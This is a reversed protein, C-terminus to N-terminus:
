RSTAVQTIEIIYCCDCKNSEISLSFLKTMISNIYQKKKRWNVFLCLIYKIHFPLTIWIFLYIFLYIINISFYSYQKKTHM